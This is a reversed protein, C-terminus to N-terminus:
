VYRNWLYKIIQNFQFYDQLVYYREQFGNTVYDKMEAIEDYVDETLRIKRSDPSVAFQLEDVSSLIGAGLVKLKTNESSQMLGFEITFWYFNSLARKADNNFWTAQGFLGLGKIFNSVYYNFLMPTHGFVDHFYDREELYALQSEERLRMNVNFIGNALRYWFDSEPSKGIISLIRWHPITINEVKPITSLELRREGYIWDDVAYQRAADIQQIYLKNWIREEPRMDIENLSNKM